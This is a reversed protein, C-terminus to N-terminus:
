WHSAREGDRRGAVPSFDEADEAPSSREDSQLVNAELDIEFIGDKADREGKEDDEM